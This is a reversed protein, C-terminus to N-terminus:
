LSQSLRKVCASFSKVSVAVSLAWASGIKGIPHKRRATHRYFSPERHPRSAIRRDTKESNTVWWTVIPIGVCRFASSHLIAGFQLRQRYDNSDREEDSDEVLVVVIIDEL